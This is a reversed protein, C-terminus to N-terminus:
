LYMEKRRYDMYSFKKRRSVAESLDLEATVLQESDDAKVILRGDPGAVLSEGAFDMRDELGVRNCMAIFVQNQMAQVRIEWEFVEMPEDKFNATPIIVLQAGRLACTRVSEPLHRDFCIVIGIRGFPTDFVKFGDDSPTYYDKEYFYEAQAVHVMKARDEIIGEPTIWLSTDYSKGNQKMYLNPSIYLRHEAAKRKMIEVAEDTEDMLYREANGGEYQPFFPSFQIEPFFLLDCSDARDCFAASKKINDTINETMSIQAM